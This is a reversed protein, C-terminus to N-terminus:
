VCPICAYFYCPIYLCMCTCALMCSLISVTENITIDSESVFDGVNALINAITELNNVTQVDPIVQSRVVLTSLMDVALGVTENTLQLTITTFLLVNNANFSYTKQHWM